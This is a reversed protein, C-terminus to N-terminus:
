HLCLLYDESKNCDCADDNTAVFTGHPAIGWWESQLDSSTGNLWGGDNSLTSQSWLDPLGDQLTGSFDEDFLINQSFFSTFSLLFIPFVFRM